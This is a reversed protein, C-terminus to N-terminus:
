KEFYRTCDNRYEGTLSCLKSDNVYVAYSYYCYSSNQELLSCTQIDQQLTAYTLICDFKNDEDLEFCIEKSNTSIAYSILCTNPSSELLCLQSNKSYLAYFYYCKSDEPAYSCFESNNNEKALELYCSEIQCQDVISRESTMSIFFISLLIVISGFLEIQKNM